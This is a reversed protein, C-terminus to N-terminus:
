RGISVVESAARANNTVRMVVQSSHRRAFYDVGLSLVKDFLRRRMASTISNGIRSLAIAEGYAAAGKCASLAVIAVSLLWMTRLHQAVFVTDVVHQMFLALGATAGAGAGMCVIAWIYTPLQARFVEAFLRRVLPISASPDTAIRAFLRPMTKLRPGAASAAHTPSRAATAGIRASDAPEVSAGAEATEAAAPPPSEVADNQCLETSSRWLSARWPGGCTWQQSTTEIRRKLSTIEVALGSFNL